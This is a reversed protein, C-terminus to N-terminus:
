SFDIFFCVDTATFPESDSWRWQCLQGATNIAVLESYMAAMHAFRPAQGDQLMCENVCSCVSTVERMAM